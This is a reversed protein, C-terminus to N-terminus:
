LRRARGRAGRLLELDIGFFREGQDNGRVPHLDVLATRALTLAAVVFPREHTGLRVEEVRAPHLDAPVVCARVPLRVVAALDDPEHFRASSSRVRARDGPQEHARLGLRRWPSPGESMVGHGSRRDAM